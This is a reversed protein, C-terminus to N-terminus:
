LFDDLLSKKVLTEKPVAASETGFINVALEVPM